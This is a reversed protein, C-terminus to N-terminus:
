TMRRTARSPMGTRIAGLRTNIRPITTVEAYATAAAFTMVVAVATILRRTM